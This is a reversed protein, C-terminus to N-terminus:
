KSNEDSKDPVRKWIKKKVEEIIMTKVIKITESLSIIMQMNKKKIKDTTSNVDHEINISTKRLMATTSNVDHEINM